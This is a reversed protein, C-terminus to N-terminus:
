GDNSDDYGPQRARHYDEEVAEADKGALPSLRSQLICSRGEAGNGHSCSAKGVLTVVGKVADSNNAFSGSVEIAYSKVVAVRVATVRTVVNFCYRSVSKGPSAIVKSRSKSCLVTSRIRM